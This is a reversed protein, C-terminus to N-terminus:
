SLCSFELLVLKYNTLCCYSEHFHDVAHQLYFHGLASVAMPTQFILDECIRPFMLIHHLWSGVWWSEKVVGNESLEPDQRARVRHSPQAWLFIIWWQQANFGSWHGPLGACFGSLWRVTVIMIKYCFTARMVAWWFSKVLLWAYHHRICGWAWPTELTRHWGGHQDAGAEEELFWTIIITFITISSYLMVLLIFFLNSMVMTKLRLLM